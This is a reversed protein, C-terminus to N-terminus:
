RNSSFFGLHSARKGARGEEAIKGSVNRRGYVGSQQKSEFDNGSSVKRNSGVMVPPTASRLDGYPLAYFPDEAHLVGNAPRQWPREPEMRQDVIDGSISVQRSNASL